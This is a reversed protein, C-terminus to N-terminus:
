KTELAVNFYLIIVGFVPETMLFKELFDMYVIGLLKHFVDQSGQRLNDDDFRFNVFVLTTKEQLSVVRLAVLLASDRITEDLIVVRARALADQAAQVVLDPLRLTFQYPHDGPFDKVNGDVDM